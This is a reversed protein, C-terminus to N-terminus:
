IFDKDLLAKLEEPDMRYPSISIPPTDPLIDIDFNIRRELPVEFLDDTVIYPSNDQKQRSTIAYFRNAERGTGFTSVRPAAKDLPAVSSSQAKNSQNGNGQQNKPCEKNRLALASVSSPAHINKKQQFSSQNVNNRQRGSENETKAKKNRFEERDRLKEEEVQQVYVMLREIYMDEILMAARSDKSSLCSLRAVFVSMKSRIDAVM